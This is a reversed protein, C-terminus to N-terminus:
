EYEDTESTDADPHLEMWKALSIPKCLDPTMFEYLPIEKKEILNVQWETRTGQDYIFRRLVTGHRFTQQYLDSALYPTTIDEPEVIYIYPLLDRPDFGSSLDEETTFFADEKDQGNRTVLYKVARHGLLKVTDKTQVISISDEVAKALNIKREIYANYFARVSDKQEQPVIALLKNLRGQNIQRLKSTYETFNTKAFVLKEPDVLILSGTKTNFSYILNYREVKINNGEIFYRKMVINGESEVMRGTIIWGASLHLPLLACILLAFFFTSKM